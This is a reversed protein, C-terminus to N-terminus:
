DPKFRVGAAELRSLMEDMMSGVMAPVGDPLPGRSRIERYSDTINGIRQGLQVLLRERERQTERAVAEHSEDRV